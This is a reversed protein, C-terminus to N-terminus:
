RSLSGTVSIESCIELFDERAIAKAKQVGGDKGAKIAEVTTQKQTIKNIIGSASELNILDSIESAVQPQNNVM